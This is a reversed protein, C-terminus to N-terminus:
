GDGYFSFLWIARLNSPSERNSSTAHAAYRHAGGAMREVSCAALMAGINGVPTLDLAQRVLAELLNNPSSYRASPHGGETRETFALDFGYDVMETAQLTLACG